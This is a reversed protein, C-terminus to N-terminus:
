VAYKPVNQVGDLAYNSTGVPFLGFAVGFSCHKVRKASDFNVIYSIIETQLM